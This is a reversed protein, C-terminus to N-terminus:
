PLDAAEAADRARSVVYARIDEVDGPALWRAFSPM